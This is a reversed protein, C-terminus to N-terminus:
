GRAARRGIPDYPPATTLVRLPCPARANHAVPTLPQRPLDPCRVFPRQLGPAAGHTRLRAAGPMSCRHRCWPSPQAHRRVAAPLVLSFATSQNRKSKAM